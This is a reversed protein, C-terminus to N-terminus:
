RVGWEVNGWKRKKKKNQAGKSRTTIELWSFGVFLITRLVGKIDGESGYNARISDSWLLDFPFSVISMGELFKDLRVIVDWHGWCLSSSFEIICCPWWDTRTTSALCFSSMRLMSFERPYSERVVDQQQKFGDGDIADNVLRKISFSEAVPAVSTWSLGTTVVAVVGGALGM